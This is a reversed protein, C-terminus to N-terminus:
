KSHGDLKALKQELENLAQQLSQKYRENTASEMQHQIYKRSLELSQVERQIVKQEASRQDKSKPAKENASEMQSEISKSEWGKAM